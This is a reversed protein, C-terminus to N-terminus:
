VRGIGTTVMPGDIEEQLKRAVDSKMDVSTPTPIDGVTAARRKACEWGCFTLPGPEGDATEIAGYWVWSRTWPEHTAGCGPGDCAYLRRGNLSWRDTAPV